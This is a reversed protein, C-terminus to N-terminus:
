LVSGESPEAGEPAAPRNQFGAAFRGVARMMERQEDSIEEFQIM